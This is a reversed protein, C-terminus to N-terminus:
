SRVEVVRHVAIALFRTLNMGVAVPIAATLVAVFPIILAAATWPEGITPEFPISVAMAALMGLPAFLLYGTLVMMRPIGEEMGDVVALLLGGSVVGALFLGVVQSVLSVGTPIYRIQIAQYGLGFLPWALGIFVIPLINKKWNVEVESKAYRLGDEFMRGGSCHRCPVKFAM